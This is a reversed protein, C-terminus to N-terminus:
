RAKGPAPPRDTETQFANTQFADSQFAAPPGTQHAAAQYAM